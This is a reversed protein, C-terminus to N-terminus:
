IISGIVQKSVEVPMGPNRAYERAVYAALRQRVEPDMFGNLDPDFYTLLALRTLRYNHCRPCVVFLNAPMPSLSAPEGCLPCRFEMSRM